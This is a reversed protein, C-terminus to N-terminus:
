ATSWLDRIRTLKREITREVCDMMRAIEENTYGEMKRQAITRLEETDLRALLERLTEAVQYAFEPDPEEGVARGIGGERNDAGRQIFVSEGRVNGAGRKRAFHRKMQTSTKRATITVLLKWLDHRDRLDPFRGAVAGRYFSHMASLVVDEEDAERRPMNGLRKRALRVLKQFYQEWLAKAAGEDQGKLGAIWATVPHSDDVVNPHSKCM